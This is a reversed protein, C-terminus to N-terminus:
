EVGTSGGGISRVSGQEHFPLCSGRGVPVALGAGPVAFLTKGRIAVQVFRLWDAEVPLTDLEPLRTNPSAIFTIEPPATIVLVARRTPRPPLRCTPGLAHPRSASQFPFFCPFADIRVAPIM